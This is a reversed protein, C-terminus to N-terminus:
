PKIKKEMLQQAHRVAVLSESLTPLEVQLSTGTLQRLVSATNQATKDEQNFHQTLLALSAELEHRFSHQDRAMLSLRASLLRLKLTERVFFQQDISLLLPTGGEIREIRIVGKIESWIGTLLVTWPSIEVTPTPDKAISPRTDMNFPLHDIGILLNELRQSMGPLDTVPIKRLRDIDHTLATRLGSFQTREMKSLRNDIAQLTNLATSVDANLQLQQIALMLVHEIEALTALDRNVALDRSGTQQGVEQELRDELVSFRGQLTQNQEQVLKSIARSEQTAQDADTLRKEWAQQQQTLQQRSGYWQWSALGALLLAALLWPNGLTKIAQTTRPAVAAVSAAKTTPEATIVTEDAPSSDSPTM